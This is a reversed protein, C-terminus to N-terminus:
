SVFLCVFLSVFLSLFHAMSHQFSPRLAVYETDIKDFSPPWASDGGKPNAYKECLALMVACLNFHFGDDATNDDLADVHSRQQLFQLKARESNLRIASEIWLLVRPKCDRSSLLALVISHLTSQYARSQTRTLNITGDMEPTIQPVLVGKFPGLDPDCMGLSLQQQQRRQHTNVNTTTTTHSLPQPKRFSSREIGCRLPLRGPLRATGGGGGWVCVCGGRCGSVLV